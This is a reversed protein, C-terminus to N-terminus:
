ENVMSMMGHLVQVEVDDLSSTADHERHHAVQAATKLEWRLAPAVSIRGYVASLVPAFDSRTPVVLDVDSFPDILDTFLPPDADSSHEAEIARALLNRAFGGHIRIPIQLSRGIDALIRMESLDRLWRDATEKYGPM